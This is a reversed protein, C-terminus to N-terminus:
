GQDAEAKEPEAARSDAVVATEESLARSPRKPLSLPTPVPQTGRVLDRGAFVGEAMQLELREEDRRRVEAILDAAEEPSVGLERLAAEGFAVASEYTERIQYDVGAEILRLTHGRDFSRVLLRAMPFEAKVLEVIRDAAVPNDICVAIAKASGAGAARLVDLRTGDGYYIKFGFRAAARIMETDDDIISVDIQKTLLAQSAVQGFRGFGIILASGTLGEALDIGELSPSMERIFRAGLVSIIPTIAMSLIVMANLFAM